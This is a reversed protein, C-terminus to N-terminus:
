KLRRRKRRLKRRLWWRWEELTWRANWCMKERRAVFLLPKQRRKEQEQIPFVYQELSKVKQWALLSWVFDEFLDVYIKASIDAGLFIMVKPGLLFSVSTPGTRERKELLTTLFRWTFFWIWSWRSSTKKWRSMQCNQRAGTSRRTRGFWMTLTLRPGRRRM